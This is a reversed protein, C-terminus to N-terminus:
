GLHAWVPLSCDTYHSQSWEWTLLYCSPINHGPWVVPVGTELTDGREEVPGVGEQGCSVVSSDSSTLQPPLLVVGWEWGGQAVATKIAALFASM